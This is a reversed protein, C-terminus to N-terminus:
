EVRMLVNYPEGDNQLVAILRYLVEAMEVRSVEQSPSFHENASPFLNNEKAFQVYPAYWSLNDVDLYPDDLVVPDVSLDTSAFLMKLFEVRNVGDSPRVSGDEYGKVVGMNVATGLIDSYWKGKAADTFAYSYDEDIGVEMGNFIMKLAEIRSVTNNPKFSKDPYGNITGQRYLYSVARYFEHNEDLDTFTEPYIKASEAKKTGYVVEIVVPETSTATFQVEVIGRQFDKKSFETKALTADGELVSVEVNGNGYFNPTPVGALDQTQIQITEAQQPVFAGDTVVAFQAFPKVEDIVSIVKSFYKRGAIEFTFYVDSEEEAYLELELQGNRFHKSSAKMRSSSVASSSLEFKINGDFEDSIAKGNDDVLSMTFTKTSGTLLFDPGTLEINSFPIGLSEPVTELEVELDVEEEIVEEEEVLPAEEIVEEEVAEEADEEEVIEEPTEEIEKVIVELEPEEQVVEEAIEELVPEESLVPAEFDGDMNAEIWETPHTTYRLMNDWGLGANVAETFSMGQAYHESSTFPWYLHWPASDLDIQFHVHHTTAFGTNGIEGIVQGKSVVDGYSVFPAEKMHGYGSYLTTTGNGNPAPVGNHQIVAYHGWGSQWGTKYVVGNAISHLPTGEPAKIDVGPHTGVFDDMDQGDSVYNGAGAYSGAYRVTCSIKVNRIELDKPDSWGLQSNPTNMKDEDCLPQATIKGAAKLEDYNLYYQSGSLRSWDANEQVPYVAGDFPEHQPLDLVSTYLINAQYQINMSGVSLAFLALIGLWHRVHENAWQKKLFSKLKEM